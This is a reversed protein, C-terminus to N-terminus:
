TNNHQINETRTKGMVQQKRNVLEFPQQKRIEKKEKVISWNENMLNREKKENKRLYWEM